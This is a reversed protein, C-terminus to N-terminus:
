DPAIGLKRAAKDLSKDLTWLTADSLVAAALLHADMWGIGQGFLRRDTVLDLVEEHKATMATPLAGLLGIVELRLAISGCALEGIVFPHMLVLNDSLLDVLKLNRRRLHDIWVSTDVLEM